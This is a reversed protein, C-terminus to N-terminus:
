FARPYLQKYVWLYIVTLLLCMQFALIILLDNNEDSEILHYGPAKHITGQYQVEAEFPQYDLNIVKLVINKLKGELKTTEEKIRQFHKRNDKLYELQMIYQHDLKRKVNLLFDKMSDEFKMLYGKKIDVAFSHRGNIEHIERM